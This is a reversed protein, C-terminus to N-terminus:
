APNVLSNPTRSNPVVGREQPDLELGALYCALDAPIGEGLVTAYADRLRRRLVTPLQRYVFAPSPLAELRGTWPDDAVVNM